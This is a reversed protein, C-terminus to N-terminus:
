EGTSMYLEISGQRFTSLFIQSIMNKVHCDNYIRLVQTRSKQTEKEHKVNLDRSRQTSSESSSGDPCNKGDHNPGGRTIIRPRGAGM